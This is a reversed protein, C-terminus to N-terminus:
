EEDLSVISIDDGWIDIIEKLYEWSQGSDDSQSSSNSQGCYNDEYWDDREDGKSYKDGEGAVDLATTTESETLSPM